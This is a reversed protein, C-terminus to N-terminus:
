RQISKIAFTVYWWEEDGGREKEKKFVCNQFGHIVGKPNIHIWCALNSYM